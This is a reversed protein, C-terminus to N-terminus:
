FLVVPYQGVSVPADMHAEVGEFVPNGAYLTPADSSEAPYWIAVRVSAGHHPLSLDTVQLGAVDAHAQAACFSLAAVSLLTKM